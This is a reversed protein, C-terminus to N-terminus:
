DTKLRSEIKSWHHRVQRRIGSQFCNSKDMIRDAKYAYTLFNGYGNSEAGLHTYTQYIAKKGAIYNQEAKEPNYKLEELRIDQIRKIKKYARTYFKFLSKDRIQVQKGDFSFGLYNISECRGSLNEIKGENFFFHETKSANLSLGPIEDKAQFIFDDIVNQMQERCSSNKMPVIIIFDDCYRRYIGNLASVFNNIKEDFDMMYINAYVCSMTAGQPIGHNKKNPDLHKTKFDQFESTTFFKDLDKLDKIKSNKVKEIDRREVISYKTLNKYIAYDDPALTECNKVQRLKEKLYRHDLGGFFDSFDGIFVYCSGSKVITEFAEKAFHINCKGRKCNRYATAVSDIGHSKAYTNYEDNLIKGYYQYIFRDVHAAYSIDRHKSKIYKNGDEDCTYKDMNVEYRIFPYFGHHAVWEPNRVLSEYAEHHKKKDFHTYGRDKLVSEQM